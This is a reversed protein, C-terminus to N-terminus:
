SNTSLHKFCHKIAVLQTQLANQTTNGVQTKGFRFGLNKWSGFRYRLFGPIATVNL